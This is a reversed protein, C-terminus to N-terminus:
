DEITDQCKYKLIDEDTIKYIKDITWAVPNINLNKNMNDKEGRLLRKVQYAELSRKIINPNVITFILLQMKM